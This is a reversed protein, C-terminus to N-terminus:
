PMTLIIEAVEKKGEPKERVRAIEETDTAGAKVCLRVSRNAARHFFTAAVKGYDRFILNGKGFTCGTILQIGDVACNDMEVVAVLEEDSAREVGLLEMARNAMKIGLSLGPCLHGHFSVVQEILASPDDSM